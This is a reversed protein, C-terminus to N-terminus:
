EIIEGKAIRYGLEFGYEFGQETGSDLWGDKQQARWQILLRDSEAVVFDWDIDAESM